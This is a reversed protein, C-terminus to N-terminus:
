WAITRSQSAIATCPCTHWCLRQAALLLNPTLWGNLKRFPALWKTFAVTDDLGEYRDFFSLEGARHLTLLLRRFLRALVRVHPFFRAKCSIWRTGNTSLGGGPVIMHVQPHHSLAVGWTHLVSTM